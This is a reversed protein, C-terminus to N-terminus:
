SRLFLIANEEQLPPQLKGQAQRIRGGDQDLHFARETPRQWNLM